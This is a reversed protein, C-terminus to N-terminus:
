GSVGKAYKHGPGVIGIPVGPYTPEPPGLASRVVPIWVYPPTTSTSYYVNGGNDTGLRGCGDSTLAFPATSTADQDVDCAYAGRPSANEFRIRVRAGTGPIGGVRAPLTVQAGPIGLRFSVSRLDGMRADDCTVDITGEANQTVVEAAYSARYLDLKPAFSPDGPVVHRVRARFQPPILTYLVEVAKTSLSGARGASTITLGPLLPAGNPAYLVVGDTTVQGAYETRSAAVDLPAWTEVGAWITGDQLVRWGLDLGTAAALDAILIDIAAHATSGGARHWRPLSLTDFFDAVGAALTEGPLADVIAELVTGAPVDTAAAVHDVPDLETLLEGAGGVIEVTLTNSGVIAEAFRVTGVFAVPVPAPEDARREPMVLLQCPGSPIATEACEVSAVWPGRLPLRLYGGLIALTGVSCSLAM